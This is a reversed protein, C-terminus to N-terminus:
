FPLKNLLKDLGKPAVQQLVGDLGKDQLKKNIKEIVKQKTEERVNDKVLGKIDVQFKPKSPSGSVSVPISINKLEALNKGGQGELSGVLAVKLQYNVTDKSLDAQGEGTVRLLPSKLNLDQNSMLGNDFRISASFESFETKDETSASDSDRGMQGKLAQSAARVLRGINIGRIFGDSFAFRSHGSLTRKIDDPDLGTLSLDANAEAKGSIRNVGTVDTLLPGGQIGSLTFKMTTKPKVPRFDVDLDGKVMGEYLRAQLPHIGLVGKNISLPILAETLRVDWFKLRQIHLKGSMDPFGLGSNSKKADLSGHMSGSKVSTERVRKEEMVRYRDLDISDISLDFGLQVPHLSTMKIHGTLQTEDLTLHIGEISAHDGDGQATMSLAVKHLVRADRTNMPDMRWTKMARALDFEHLQWQGQWVPKTGLGAMKLHGDLKAGGSVLEVGTLDLSGKKLDVDVLGALTGEMFTGSTQEGQFTVRMGKLQSRIRPGDLLAHVEMPGSLQTRGKGSGGGQSMLAFKDAQALIEGKKMDLTLNMQSDISLDGSSLSSGSNKLAMQFSQLHVLGAKPTTEWNGSFRGMLRGGDTIAGQAELECDKLSGQFRNGDSSVTIKSPCTCTSQGNQGMFGDRARVTLNTLNVVVPEGHGMGFRWDVSGRGDVHGNDVLPGHLAFVVTELRGDLNNSALDLRANARFRFEGGGNKFIGGTTELIVKDLTTTLGNKELDAQIDVDMHGTFGGGSFIPGEGKLSLDNLTVKTLRRKLDADVKGSSEVRIFGDKLSGERVEVSLGSLLSTLTMTALDIQGDMTLDGHTKVGGWRSGGAELSIPDFILKVIRSKPDFAIKGKSDARLSTGNLAAESGQLTIKELALEAKADALALSLEGASTVTIGDNKGMGTESTVSLTDVSAHLQGAVLDVTVRGKMVAKTPFPSQARVVDTRLDVSVTQGPVWRGVDLNLNDLTISDGSRADDWLIRGNEVHVGQFVVAAMMTAPHDEQSAAPASDKKVEEPANARSMGEWNGTGDINREFHLTLGKVMVTDVEIKKHLLPLLQVRVEVSDVSALPETGFGAANGLAVGKAQIGIWPILSVTLGDRIILDRGTNEKVWRSITERYDNPNVFMTVGAGAVLALVLVAACALFLIKVPKM